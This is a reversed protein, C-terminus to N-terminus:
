QAEGAHIVTRARFNRTECNSRKGAGCDAEGAIDFQEERLKERSKIRGSAIGCSVPRLWITALAQNENSDAM